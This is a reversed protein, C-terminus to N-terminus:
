NRDVDIKLFMPFPSSTAPLVREFNWVASIVANVWSQPALCQNIIQVDKRHAYTERLNESHDYNCELMIGPWGSQVLCSASDLCGAMESAGLNMVYSQLGSLNSSAMAAM